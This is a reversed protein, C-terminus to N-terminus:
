FFVTTKFVLREKGAFDSKNVFNDIKKTSNEGCKMSAVTRSEIKENGLKLTNTTANTRRGNNCESNMSYKIFIEELDKAALNTGFQCQCFKMEDDTLLPAMDINSRFKQKFENGFEHWKGIILLRVYERYLDALSRCRISSSGDKNVVFNSNREKLLDPQFHYEDFNQRQYKEKRKNGSNLVSKVEKPPLLNSLDDFENFNTQVSRDVVTKKMELPTTQLKLFKCISCQSCNFKKDSRNQRNEVDNELHVFKSNRSQTDSTETSEEDDDDDDDGESFSTSMTWTVVDGYINTM